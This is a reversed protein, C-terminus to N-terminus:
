WVDDYCVIYRFWHPWSHTKKAVMSLEDFTLIRHHLLPWPVRMLKTFVWQIATVCSTFAHMMSNSLWEVSSFLMSFLGSWGVMLNPMFYFSWASSYKTHQKNEFKSNRTLIKSDRTFISSFRWEFIKVRYKFITVRCELIKVRLEFILLVSYKLNLTCPCIYHDMSNWQLHENLNFSQMCWPVQLWEFSGFLDIGILWLKWSHVTIM